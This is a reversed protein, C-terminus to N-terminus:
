KATPLVFQSYNSREFSEKRRNGIPEEDDWNQWDSGHFPKLSLAQQANVHTSIIEIWYSIQIFRVLWDV